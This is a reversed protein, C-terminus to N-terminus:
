KKKRSSQQQTKARELLRVIEPHYFFKAVAWPTRGDVTAKKIDAGRDLLVRVVQVHGEQSAIHLPTWGHNSAQHM